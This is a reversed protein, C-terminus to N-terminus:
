RILSREDARSFHSSLQDGILNAGIALAAIGAAPVIVILPAQSLLVRGESVMLGWDSSPPQVGLGLFNLTSIFIITYTFRLTFEALLPGSINPLLERVIIATTTEGRAQAAEIYEEACVAQTAGRVIRGVRPAFFLAVVLILVPTSTGLAMVFLMIMLLPPLSLLVDMLRTLIVDTIGGKYGSTMGLAMGLAFALVTASFSLLILSAGGHLFRSFVDRGLLDTGFPLAWSPGSAPPALAIERPSNPAVLPGILAILAISTVLLVGIRGSPRKLPIALLGHFRGRKAERDSSYRPVQHSESASM